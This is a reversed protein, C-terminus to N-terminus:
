HRIAPIDCFHFTISKSAYMIAEKCEPVWYGSSSSNGNYDYSCM